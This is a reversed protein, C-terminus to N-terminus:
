EMLENIAASVTANIINFGLRYSLTSIVPEENPWMLTMELLENGVYFKLSGHKNRWLHTKEDRHDPVCYALLKIIDERNAHQSM